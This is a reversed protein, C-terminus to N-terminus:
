MALGAGAGTGLLSPPVRFPYAIRPPLISMTPENPRRSMPTRRGTSAGPMSPLRYPTSPSVMTSASPRTGFSIPSAPEGMRSPMFGGYRGAYPLPLTSGTMSSPVGPAQGGYGGLSVSPSQGWSWAPSLGVVLAFAKAYISGNM